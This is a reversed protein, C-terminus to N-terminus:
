PFYSCYLNLLNLDGSEVTEKLNLLLNLLTINKTYDERIEYKWKNM